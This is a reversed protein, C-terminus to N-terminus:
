IRAHTVLSIDPAPRVASATQATIEHPAGDRGSVAAGVDAAARWRSSHRRLLVSTYM